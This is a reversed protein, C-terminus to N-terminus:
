PVTYSVTINIGAPLASCGVGGSKVQLVHGSAVQFATPGSDALNTNDPFTAHQSNSAATTDVVEIYPQTSCGSGMGAQTPVAVIRTITLNAPAVWQSWVAAAQIGSQLYTSWTGYTTGGGGGGGSGCPAASSLLTGSTWQACGDSVGTRKIPGEVTLSKDSPDFTAITQLANPTSGSSGAPAGKVLVKGGSGSGTGMGGAIVQDKGAVNSGSATEKGLTGVVDIVQALNGNYIDPCLGAPTAMGGYGNGIVWLLCAQGIDFQTTRPPLPPSYVVDGRGDVFHTACQTPYNGGMPTFDGAVVTNNLDLIGYSDAGGAPPPGSIFDCRNFFNNEFRSGLVENRNVQGYSITSNTLSMPGEVAILPYYKLDVTGSSCNSSCQAWDPQSAVVGRLVASNATGASTALTMHDGDAVSAVTYTIGSLSVQKGTWASQFTTGSARTVSTGNTNVIGDLSTPKVQWTSGKMSPATADTFVIENPALTSGDQWYKYGGGIQQTIHDANWFGSVVHGSESRFFSVKSPNDRHDLFLDAANTLGNEAGGGVVEVNGKYVYMGYGSCNMFHPQIWINNLANAGMQKMCKDTYWMFHVSSYTNESCMANDGSTACSYGTGVDYGQASFDLDQFTDGQNAGAWGANFPSLIGLFDHNFSICNHCASSHNFSIGSVTNKSFGNANVINTARTATLRTCDKGEGLIRGGWTKEWILDSDILYTGCPAYLPKNSGPTTTGHEYGPKGFATFYSEQWAVRDWEAGSAYYAYSVNGQTGASAGLTMATPSAVSSVTYATSGITITHGALYYSFKAGSVWTVATGATSVTGTGLWTNMNASVDATTLPHSSGDGRAGYHLVNVRYPGDLVWRSQPRSWRWTQGNTSPSTADVQAGQIQTASTLDAAHLGDVTDANSSNGCDSASSELNNGDNAVRVCRAPTFSNTGTGGKNVALINSASPAAAAIAVDVYGKNAAAAETGPAPVLPSRSFTKAGDITEDGNRRVATALQGDVYDRSVVQMAVTAPVQTSRIAAITTPSLAPVSWYETSTSGDELSVVVKYATGSPTAGQTPILPINVSGNPNIKVSLTGAAVPKGDSTSFAPWSILITGRAVSGDARYITDQVVTKLPDACRAPLTFLVIASMLCCFLRELRRPNQTM